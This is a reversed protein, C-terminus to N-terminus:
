YDLSSEGQLTKDTWIELILYDLSSEGQLTM